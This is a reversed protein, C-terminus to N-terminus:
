EKKWIDQTSAQSHESLLPGVTLHLHASLTCVSGRNWESAQGPGSSPCGHVQAEWAEPSLGLPGQVSFASQDPNGLTRRLNPM